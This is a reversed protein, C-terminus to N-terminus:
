TKARFSAYHEPMAPVIHIGSHGLSEGDLGFIGGNKLRLFEREIVEITDIVTVNGGELVAVKDGIYFM